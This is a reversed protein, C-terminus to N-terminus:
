PRQKQADPHVETKYSRPCLYFQRPRGLSVNVLDLTAPRGLSAIHPQEVILEWLLLSEGPPELDLEPLSRTAILLDHNETTVADVKAVPQGVVNLIRVSISIM